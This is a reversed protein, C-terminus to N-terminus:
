NWTKNVGSWRCRLTLSLGLCAKIDPETDQGLSSDTHSSDSVGSPEIELLFRQIRMLASVSDHNIGELVASLSPAEDTAIWNGIQAELLLLCASVSCKLCFSLSLSSPAVCNLQQYFLCYQSYQVRFSFSCLRCTIQQCVKWKVFATSHSWCILISSPFYHPPIISCYLFIVLVSYSALYLFHCAFLLPIVPSVHHPLPINTIHYALSVFLLM